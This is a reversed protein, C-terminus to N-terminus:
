LEEPPAYNHVFELVTLDDDAAAGFGRADSDHRDVIAGTLSDAFITVVNIDEATYTNPDLQDRILVRAQDEGFHYTRQHDYAMFDFYDPESVGNIGMINNITVVVDVDIAGTKDAAGALLGAAYDLMVHQAVVGENPATFPDPSAHSAAFDPPRIGTNLLEIANGYADTGQIVIVGETMLKKYLALNQLPSDIAVATNEDTWFEMRGMPDQTIPKVSSALSALAEELARELVNDPSRVENLRGLDVEKPIVTYTDLGITVTQDLELNGEADISLPYYKNYAGATGPDFTPDGDVDQYVPKLPLGTADTTFAAPQVYTTDGITVTDPVGNDDRVLVYLDGFLDGKRTDSGQMGGGPTQERDGNRGAWVPQDSDDAETVHADVRASGGPAVNVTVSKSREGRAALVLYSGSKLGTLTVDGYGAHVTDTGDLVAIYTNEPRADITLTGTPPVTTCGAVWLIVIAVAALIPARARM